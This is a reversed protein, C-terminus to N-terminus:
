EDSYSENSGTLEEGPPGNDIPRVGTGVVVGPLDSEGAVRVNTFGASRLAATLGEPTVLELQRQESTVVSDGDRRDTVRYDISVVGDSAIDVARELRYRSGSYTEVSPNFVAESDTPAALIVIGGPRLVGYAAGCLDFTSHRAVAPELMCVADFASHVPPAVARGCVVSEGRAAPFRLHSRRDDAGVAEYHTGLPGLVAGFGCGLELVRDVDTPVRRQVLHSRREGWTEPVTRAHVPALTTDMSHAGTPDALIARCADAFTLPRRGSM